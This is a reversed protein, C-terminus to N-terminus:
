TYILGPEASKQGSGAGMRVSAGRGARIGAKDQDAAM